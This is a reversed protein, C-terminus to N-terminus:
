IRFTFVGKLVTDQRTSHFRNESDRLMNRNWIFYLDRGRAPQWRLRANIGMEESVNDFQVLPVLSWRNTIALESSLSMIRATFDGSQQSVENVIYEARMNFRASPKWETRVRWSDRDGDLFGGGEVRFGLEWKRHRASTFDVGYRTNAYDGPPVYLMGFLDFGETLVERDRLVYAEYRDSLRSEAELFKLHLNQSKEDSFTSEINRVTIEQDIQLFAGGGPRHRLRYFLRFDDIGPRNVFGMAPDFDKGFHYYWGEIRHRDDPYDWRVGWAADDSGGAEQPSVDPLENDTKQYWADGTLIHDGLFRSTRLRFDVGLTRADRAQQPDGETLIVGFSSEELVNATTRAVLLNRSGLAESAAQQVGLFGLNFGNVRGTVKGGYNLNLPEGDVGLGITRSFFPRGNGGLSAFEFIGADQLFFERKEPFFLSFRTLNIQRGDVGAASFDTNLTLRGTLSPTIRYTLDLSPEFSSHDEGSVLDQEGKLTVSPVIDLGLGQKLGELGTLTGAFAPAEIFAQRGRSSWALTEQRKRFERFFNIGWTDLSPDFAVTSFPIRIEATWGHEDIETEAQWIGDWDSLLRANNEILADAQIAHANIEFYYGNRRDLFPDLVISFRDDTSIRGAPV